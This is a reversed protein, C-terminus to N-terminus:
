KENHDNGLFEAWDVWESYYRSPNLPFNTPRKIKHWDYLQTITKINLEKLKDKAETYTLYDNM